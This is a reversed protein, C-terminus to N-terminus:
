LWTNQKFTEEFQKSVSTLMRQELDPDCIKLISVFRDWESQVSENAMIAKQMENYFMGSKHHEIMVRNEKQLKSITDRLNSIIRAQAEYMLDDQRIQSMTYDKLKVM